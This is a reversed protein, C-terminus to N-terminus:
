KLVEFLIITLVVAIAKLLDLAIDLEAVPLRHKIGRTESIPEYDLVM